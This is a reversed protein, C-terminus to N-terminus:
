KKGKRNDFYKKLYKGTLSGKSKVCERPSGYFVVEGGRDGGHPGLDIITDACKIVEMNHEIVLISNGKALLQQFARMLVAIDHYHLGITPEDFIFLQNKNKSDMMEVALKMRQAEGVSLTSSSQGLSLYGLGVHNLLSLKNVIPTYDKFFEIAENVTMTLIEYINKGNWRIQLVDKKFRKGDCQECKLFVDALFHMEEKISGLGQCKECRGGKINFSFERAEFGNVRADRTATFLKRIESYVKTYTVPCSRVSRGLTSQDVFIMEDINNVGKISTVKGIDSIPRGKYALFNKYLVDYILSSKGAGSVGTVVVFQNLPITVTINKLNHECAHYLEIKKNSLTEKNEKQDYLSITEDGRLYQATFSKTNNKLDNLSGMFVIEGGHRGAGPGLDIVQDAIGMIQADHEIIVITNGLKKLNQLIAILKTNDSEHLGISPEDLVYLTDVLQTGLATALNIRQMEGGSLTRSMRDLTLYGLGVEDLYRLRNKLEVLAPGILKTRETSLHLTEFFIRSDHITMCQVDYITQKNIKVQLSEERLRANKCLPCTIYNRYRSLFIRVHMKYKKKELYAFFDNISFYDGAGSTGEFIQKIDKKKLNKFPISLPIKARKCFKVLQSKEWQASPKEWPEIAGDQLTKNKDPVILDPDLVIVRGFGECEPCAGIPSNFSFLNPEPRQFTKKCAACAYLASYNRITHAKFFNSTKFVAIKLHDNGRQYAISLSDCLRRLSTQTIKVRDLVIDIKATNKFDNLSSLCESIDRINGKLFLRGYGQKILEQLYLKLYDKSTKEIPISFIIGVYNGEYEKILEKQIADITDVGIEKNCSPCYMIGIRAFLIRLFDNVETQTGVTSRANSIVNKAEICIAPLIGRISEVPPREMRELFQRTYSSLSEIYRRQGEAYLTDIALSSKGSGSLGTIVTITGHKISVSISKLNHTTINRLQIYLSDNM